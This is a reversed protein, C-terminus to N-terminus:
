YGQRALESQLESQFAMLDAQSPKYGQQKAVVGLRGMQDLYWDATQGDSFTVKGSVLAGPRTVQDVAVMVNGAGGPPAAEEGAFEDEEEAPPQKSGPALGAPARAGTPAGGLATPAAVPPEKDKPKLKLDDLLFRVEMYTLRLGLESALRNQIDSIKLGEEVWKMVRQKQADDLNM